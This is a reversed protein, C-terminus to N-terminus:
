NLYAKGAFQSTFKIQLNNENIYIIDGIVISGASDVVTVSPFKNLSHNMEWLVSSMLQNHVYGKIIEKEKSSIFQNDNDTIVQDASTEFHIVNYIGDSNKLRYKTKISM